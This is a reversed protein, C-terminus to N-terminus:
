ARAGHNIAGVIVSSEVAIEIVVGARVVQMESHAVLVLIRNNRALKFARRFWGVAPKRAAAYDPSKAVQRCDGFVGHIIVGVEHTCVPMCM